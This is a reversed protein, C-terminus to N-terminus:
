TVLIALVSFCLRRVRYTSICSPPRVEALLEAITEKEAMQAQQADQLQHRLRMTEQQNEERAMQLQVKLDVVANDALRTEKM